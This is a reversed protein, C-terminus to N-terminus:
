RQSYNRLISAETGSRIMAAAFEHGNDLAKQEAKSLATYKAIDAATRKIGKGQMADLFAIARAQRKLGLSYTDGNTKEYRKAFTKKSTQYKGAFERDTLRHYDEAVRRTASNKAISSDVRAAEKAAKEAKASEKAEIKQAKREAAAKDAVEAKKIQEAKSAANMSAMVKNGTKNYFRENVDYVKALARRATGAVSRSGGDNDGDGYREKGAATWTGDANQFRRVGWKQGKIGHHMLDEERLFSYGYLEM